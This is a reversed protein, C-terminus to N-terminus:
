KLHKECIEKLRNLSEAPTEITNLLYVPVKAFLESFFRKRKITKEKTRLLQHPNCFDREIMFRLAANKSLRKIPSKGKERTLLVIVKLTSEQKVRSSGFFKKVDVIARNKNDYEVHALKSRFQPWNEALDSRIYSNKEASYVKVFDDFFRVFFWDDTLFNYERDTLLGYTLTTKGSGSPGIIAVGAGGHDVFSGHISYRRHESIFDEMFEAALGLAISKIWGYYDCNKIFVTKSNPEYSVSLEKGDRVVFIRGHPRIWDPMQEFNEKWMQMVVESDTFLKVCMGHIAAKDELLGRKYYKEMLENKREENIIKVRYL